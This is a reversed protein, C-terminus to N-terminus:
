FGFIGFCNYFMHLIYIHVYMCIYVRLTLMSYILAKFKCLLVIFCLQAGQLIIIPNIGVSIGLSQCAGLAPSPGLNLAPHLHRRRKTGELQQM